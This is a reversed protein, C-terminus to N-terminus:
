MIIADFIDKLYCETLLDTCHGVTEKEINYIIFQIKDMIKIGYNEHTKRNVFPDHKCWINIVKTENTQYINFGTINYMEEHSFGHIKKIMDVLEIAGNVGTNSKILHQKIESSNYHNSYIEHVIMFFLVDPRYLFNDKFSLVNDMVQWPTDYTIIKKKFDFEYLQNMIHSAVVGGSSFGLLILEQIQNENNISKIYEAVDKHINISSKDLKEFIIIEYQGYKPHFYPNNKIDYIFKQIYVDYSLKYSGSIIVILRKAKNNTKYITAKHSFGDMKYEYITELLIGVTSNFFLFVCLYIYQCLMLFFLLM